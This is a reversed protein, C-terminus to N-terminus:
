FRLSAKLNMSLESPRNARKVIGLAAAMSFNTSSQFLIEPMVSMNHGEAWAKFLSYTDFSRPLESKSIWVYQIPLIVSWQESFKQQYNLLVDQILLDQNFISLYKSSSNLNFSSDQWKILLDGGKSDFNREQIQDFDESEEIYNVGISLQNQLFNFETGLRLKVTNASYIGLSSTQNSYESHVYINDSIPFKINGLISPNLISQDAQNLYGQTSIQIDSSRSGIKPKWQVGSSVFLARTFNTRPDLQVIYNAVLRDQQNALRYDKENVVGDENDVFIYNGEGAPVKVFRYLPTALAEYQVKSNLQVTNGVYNFFAEPVGNPQATDLQNFRYGLGFQVNKGQYQYQSLISFEEESQSSSLYNQSGFVARTFISHQELFQYNIDTNLFNLQTNSGIREIWATGNINLQKGTVQISPKVQLLTDSLVIGLDTKVLSDSMVSTGNFSLFNENNIQIFFSSLNLNSSLQYELGNLIYETSDIPQNLLSQISYSQPLNLGGAVTKFEQSKAAHILKFKNIQFHLDSQYQLKIKNDTNLSNQDIGYVEVQGYDQHQFKLRYESEPLQVNHFPSYDGNGEGVYSFISEGLESQGIVEYEGLKQGVFQFFVTFIESAEYNEPEEEFLFYQTGQSDIRRYPVTSEDSQRQYASLVRNQNNNELQSKWVSSLYDSNGLAISNVEDTRFMGNLTWKDHIIAQQSEFSTYSNSLTQFAVQIPIGPQFKSAKLITITSFLYDIQYASEPIVAGNQSLTVSNPILIGFQNEFLQYPGAFGDSVVLETQQQNQNNRGITILSSLQNTKKKVFGIGRSNRKFGNSYSLDGIRASFKENEAQIYVRSINQFERSYGDNQVPIDNDKLSGTVLIGNDLEANVQLDIDNDNNQNISAGVTANQTITGTIPSQDITNISSPEPLFPNLVPAESNISEQQYNSYPKNYQFPFQYASILINSGFQVSHFQILNQAPLFQFESQLLQISDIWITITSDPQFVISDPLQYQVIPQSLRDSLQISQSNGFTAYLCFLILFFVRRGSSYLSSSCPLGRNSKQSPWRNDM